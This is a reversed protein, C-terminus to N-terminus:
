PPTGVAGGAGREGASRCVAVGHREAHGRDTLRPRASARLRAATWMLLVAIGLNQTIIRGVLLPPTVYAFYWVLAALVVVVSIAAVRGLRQGSRRLLGEALLVFGIPLLIGHVSSTLAVGANLSLAVNAAFRVRDNGRLM